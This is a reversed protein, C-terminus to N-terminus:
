LTVLETNECVGIRYTMAPATSEYLSGQESYDAIRAPSVTRIHPAQSSKGTSPLTQCPATLIYCSLPYAVQSPLGNYQYSTVESHKGNM